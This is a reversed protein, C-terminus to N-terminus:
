DVASVDPVQDDAMNNEKKVADAQRMNKAPL